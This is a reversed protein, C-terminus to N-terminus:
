RRWSKVSRYAVRAVKLPWAPVALLPTVLLWFRPEAIRFRAIERWTRWIQVPSYRPATLKFNLVQFVDEQRGLENALDSTASGFPYRPLENAFEVFKLHAMLYFDVERLGKRREARSQDLGSQIMTFLPQGVILAMGSKLIERAMFFHIWQTGVFRGSDAALWAQKSFVCSSILSNSFRITRLVDRADLWRSDGAGFRSPMIRGANRVEYNVFAFTVDRQGLWELVRPLADSSPDDDDSFTWVYKGQAHHFLADVNRDFGLNEPNRFYRFAIGPYGAALEACVAATDDTSCNDSVIIELDRLENRAIQDLFSQLTARLRKARNYTPIALTLLM